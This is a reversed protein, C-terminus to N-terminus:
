IQIQKGADTDAHGDEAYKLLGSKARPTEGELSHGLQVVTPQEGYNFARQQDRHDGVHLDHKFGDILQAPVVNSAVCGQVLFDLTM